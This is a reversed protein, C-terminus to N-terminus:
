LFTQSLKTAKILGHLDTQYLFGQRVDLTFHFRDTPPDGRGVILYFSRAILGTWISPLDLPLGQLNKVSFIQFRTHMCLTHTNSNKSKSKWILIYGVLKNSSFYGGRFVWGLEGEERNM